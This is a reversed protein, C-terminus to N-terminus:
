ERRGHFMQLFFDGANKWTKDQRAYTNTEGNIPRMVTKGHRRLEENLDNHLLQSNVSKNNKKGSLFGILGGICAMILVIIIFIIGM